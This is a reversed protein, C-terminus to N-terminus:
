EYIYNGLYEATTYYGMQNLWNVFRHNRDYDWSTQRLLRRIQGRVYNGDARREVLDGIYRRGAENLGKAM